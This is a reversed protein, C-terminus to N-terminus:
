VNKRALVKKAAEVIYKANLKYRESLYDIKGVEGFEDQVGIMEMPVPQNKVVVDAVAAGLGNIVNHNEATVIAGTKKAHEIIAEQDIPKWTFMNLVSANIGQEKLAQAAKLSESVCYGSSILTVDDGDLLKAAKGIEFTTGEDYVAISFKRAIRIYHVGYLDAVQRIMEKAMFSDTPEILTVTPIARMIAMDEFPMHTGGNLQATIGPDSGVIKVNLQAYAASMFVQDCARRTAFPAFTHAFPIKGAASMGAAVGIMNAEQIGCDIARDPYKEAFITTGIASMLDAELIVINQNTEALEVLTQAYAKRMELDDKVFEKVLKISM